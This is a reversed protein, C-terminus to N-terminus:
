AVNLIANNLSVNKGLKVRTSRARGYVIYEHLNLFGLRLLIRKVQERLVGGFSVIIVEWMDHKM